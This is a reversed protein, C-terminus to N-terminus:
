FAYQECDKGGITDAGADMAKTVKDLKVGTAAWEFVDLMPTKVGYRDDVQRLMAATTPPAAVKVYYKNVPGYVTLTKGDYYFQRNRRKSLVELYLRDPRRTSATM